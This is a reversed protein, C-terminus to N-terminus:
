AKEYSKKAEEVKKDIQGSLIHYFMVFDSALSWFPYTFTAPKNKEIFFHGFWAFGYGVLPTLWLISYSNFLLASILILIVLGTGIFHMWQNKKNAHETLYYSYFEKFSAIRKKSM